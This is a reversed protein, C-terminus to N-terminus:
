FSGGENLFQHYLEMAAATYMNGYRELMEPTGYDSNISSTSTVCVRQWVTESGSDNWHLLLYPQGTSSRETLWQRGDKMEVQMGDALAIENDDQLLLRYELLYMDVGDVLGASGTNVRTLGTIKATSILTIHQVSLRSDMYEGNNWKDVLQQVYDVAYDIVTDPLDEDVEVGIDVYNYWTPDIIGVANAPMTKWNGDADHIFWVVVNRVGGTEYFAVEAGDKINRIVVSQEKTISIGNEDAFTKALLWAKNVFWEQSPGISMTLVSIFNELEPNKILWHKEGYGVLELNGSVISENFRYEEGNVTILMGYEPTGSELYKNIEFDTRDLNNLLSVLEKMEDESLERKEDKTGINAVTIDEVSLHSTLAYPSESAGTFTCGVAFVAILAVIVLTYITTKPKKAILVIREKISNKSSTMTTATLFLVPRKQCTMEILTRGYEARESEGIRKITAEDCALESDRRSLMAAWWVLLDYWHLVICTGRLLSWIHDGHRFHTLEHEISHHCMIADAAAEPTLYVAPHFLGFLCPTDVIETIYVPLSYSASELKRRTKRLKVGFRLNSVLLTLGLVASGTLWVAKIIDRVSWEGNMREFIEYDVKEYENLPLEAIDIGKRAYEQKVESYAASYTMSPIEVQSLVSALQVAKIKAAKQTLNGISLATEGINVPILLRVLVLAWLAYQLRLSIKGKLVFRLAIVFATLVVSSIVWELM